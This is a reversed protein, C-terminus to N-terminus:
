TKMGSLYPYQYEECTFFDRSPYINKQTHLEIFAGTNEFLCGLLLTKICLFIVPMQFKLLITLVSLTCLAIAIDLSAWLIDAIPSMMSVLIQILLEFCSNYCTDIIACRTYCRSYSVFICRVETLVILYSVTLVLIMKFPFPSTQPIYIGEM